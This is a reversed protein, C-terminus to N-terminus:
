NKKLKQKNIKTEFNRTVPGPVHRYMEFTRTVPGPVHRYMEFTRTVPGPVNAISSYIMDTFNRPYWSKLIEWLEPERADCAM